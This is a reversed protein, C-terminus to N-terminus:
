DRPARATRRQMLRRARAVAIMTIEELDLIGLLVQERGHGTRDLRREVLDRGYTFFRADDQMPVSEHRHDFTERWTNYEDTYDEEPVNDQLANRSDGLRDLVEQDVGRILEAFDDLNNRTVVTSVDLVPKKDIPVAQNQAEDSTPDKTADKSSGSPQEAPRDGKPAQTDKTLSPM